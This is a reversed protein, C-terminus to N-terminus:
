TFGVVAAVKDLASFGRLLFGYKGKALNLCGCVCEVVEGLARRVRCSDCFDSVGVGDFGVELAYRERSEDRGVVVILAIEM